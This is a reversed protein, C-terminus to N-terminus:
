LGVCQLLKGGVALGVLALMNFLVQLVAGDRCVCLSCKGVKAATRVKHVGALDFGDLQGRYGTSEPATISCAFLHLAQIADCEGLLLHEVLIEDHEFFGLLAVM